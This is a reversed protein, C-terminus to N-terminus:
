DTVHFWSQRPEWVGSHHSSSRVVPSEPGRGEQPLAAQPGLKQEWSSDLAPLIGVAEERCLASGAAPRHVPSFRFFGWTSTAPAQDSGPAEAQDRPLSRWSLAAPLPWRMWRLEWTFVARGRLFPRLAQPRVTLRPPGKWGANHEAGWPGLRDYTCGRHARLYLHSERSMSPAM